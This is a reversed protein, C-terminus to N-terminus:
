KQVNIDTLKYGIGLEKEYETKVIVVIDDLKRNFNGVKQIPLSKGKADPIPENCIAMCHRILQDFEDTFEAAGHNNAQIAKYQHLIRECWEKYADAYKNLQALVKDSVASTTKNQTDEETEQM